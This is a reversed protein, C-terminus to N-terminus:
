ARPVGDFLLSLLDLVAEVLMSAGAFMWVITVTAFPNLIILVACIASVAASIAPWYWKKSRIRLADVTLQVKALSVVLMGIGYLVTLAPFTAAFWNSRFAFFGGSLLMLLGKTLSQAAIAKETTSRIYEVVYVVGRLMMLIGAGIIIATTFDIPRFLLLAGVLMEILVVALSKTHKRTFKIM